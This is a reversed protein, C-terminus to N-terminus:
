RLYKEIMEELQALQADIKEITLEEDKECLLYGGVVSGSFPCDHVNCRCYRFFETGERSLLPFEASFAFEMTECTLADVPLAADSLEEEYNQM